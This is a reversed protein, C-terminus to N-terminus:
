LSLTLTGPAQNGWLFWGDSAERAFMELKSQQPHMLEIRKRFEHPKASHKTRQRSYFQRVNRLGRPKPIAGHTGVIVLETQSMTYYGPNTIVKDWVFAITKYKFGWAEILKISIDLQPGTTWMYHICQKSRLKKVNLEALENLTMTPYHDTACGTEHLKNNLFARGDYDM